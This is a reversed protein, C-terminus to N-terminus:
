KCGVPACLILKQFDTFALATDELLFAMRGRNLYGRSNEEDLQVVISFDQFAEKYLGLLSYCEGRCLFHNVVNDESKDIAQDLDTVAEEFFGCSYKLLARAYYLESETSRLVISSSVLEMVEGMKEEVKGRERTESLLVVARYFRAEINKPFLGAAKNFYSLCTAWQQTSGALLGKCLCRNYATVKDLKGEKMVRNFDQVAAELQDLCALGFGRYAYSLTKYETLVSSLSKIVKGLQKTGEKFKRKMLNLVGEVYLELDALDQQKDEARSLTHSAGYFDRQHIKISTLHFLAEDTYKLEHDNKLVQEFSLYAEQEQGQGLLLKGKLFSAQAESNNQSLYQKTRVLDLDHLAEYHSGHEIYFLARKLLGQLNSKTCRVASSYAAEAAASDGLVQYTDGIGIYAGGEESDIKLAAVFDTLAKEPKQLQLHLQGRLLRGEVFKPFKTLGRSIHKVASSLDKTALFCMALAQYVQKDYLPSDSSVRLLYPIAMRHQNLHMFCLARSYLAEPNSAEYKLVQKFYRLADSFQGLKM